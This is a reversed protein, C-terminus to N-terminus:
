KIQICKPAIIKALQPVKPTLGLEFLRSSFAHVIVSGEDLREDEWLEEVDDRWQM